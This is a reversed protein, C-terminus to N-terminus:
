RPTPIQGGGVLRPGDGARHGFTGPRNSDRHGLRRRDATHDGNGSEVGSGDQRNRPRGKPERDPHRHNQAAGCRAVAADSRCAIRVKSFRKAAYAVWQPLIGAMSQSSDLSEEARLRHLLRTNIAPSIVRGGLSGTMTSKGAITPNGAFRFNSTLYSDIM